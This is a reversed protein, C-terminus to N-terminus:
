NGIKNKTLHMYSEPDENLKDPTARNKYQRLNDKQQKM